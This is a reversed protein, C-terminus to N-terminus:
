ADLSSDETHTGFVNFRVEHLLEGTEIDCIHEFVAYKFLDDPAPETKYEDIFESFSHGGLSCDFVLDITDPERALLSFFDGVTVDEEIHVFRDLYKCLSETDPGLEKIKKDGGEFFELTIKDKHIVVM